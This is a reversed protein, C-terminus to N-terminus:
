CWYFVRSIFGGSELEDTKIESHLIVAENGEISCLKHIHYLIKLYGAFWGVRSSTVFDGFISESHKWVLHCSLSNQCVKLFM